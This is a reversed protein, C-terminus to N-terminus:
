KIKAKAKLKEQFAGLQRRQIGERLQDKVEDFAPIQAKRTDDLRIVHWGFQSQVPTQTLEGKKLAMLADAFPKVFNSPNAWDLDGGRAASGPDKSDKALDEFKAGKGLKQIIAKAADESEVLIHRARYEDGQLKSLREYEAKVDAEKIPNKSIEDQVLAQILVQQRAADIQFKLEPKAPLGRREAEQLLIERDVLEQRVLTALEPTVPQGQKELEKMFLDARAKPIARGNVVAINQALATSSLTLLLAALVPSFRAM